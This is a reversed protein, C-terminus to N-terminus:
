ARESSCSRKSTVSPRRNKMTRTSSGFSVPRFYVFLRHCSSVHLYCGIWLADFNQSSVKHAEVSNACRNVAHLLPYGKLLKDQDSEVRVKVSSGRFVEEVYEAVRPPAM